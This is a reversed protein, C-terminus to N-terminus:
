ISAKNLESVVARIKGSKERPMEDVIEVNIEIDEDLCGNRIEDKIQTITKQSFNIGKTAQVVIKNQKKQIIRYEVIGEIYELFNINRPSIITGSPLIIFDDKRGEIVNMMPLRRGCSCQENDYSGVDGVSYRILPMSSNFLGTIVIEGKEGPSTNEGNKLFEVVVSEIDMHYGNHEQCEWAVTGFEASGYQDFLETCFTSNIKKRVDQILLESSCIILKPNIGEINERVTNTILLLISPYGEIVDPSYDLLNSIHNETKDFVSLFKRHLFGLKQFWPTNGSAKPNTFQVIKDRIHGGAEFYNRFSRSRMDSIAKNDFLLKLPRGTSGSTTCSRLRTKDVNRSIIKQSNNQIQSKNLIHIKKLDHVTKIDSPLLNLSKFLDHYYEVNEYAYKITTRLKKQQINELKQRSLWQSKKLEFYETPQKIQSISNDIFQNIIKRNYFEM